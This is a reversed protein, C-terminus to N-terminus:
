LSFLLWALAASSSACMLRGAPHLAGKARSGMFLDWNAEDMTAIDGTGMGAASNVIIDIRGWTDVATKVMEEATKWNSCDGYFAKAEGGEAIIVNATGEADGKLRCFEAWDEEPIDEKHYKQASLGNPKRNNTIVKAGLRALGIAIGKGIGQGSGSVIAVKGELCKEM